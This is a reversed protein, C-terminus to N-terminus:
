FARKKLCQAISLEQKSSSNKAKQKHSISKNLVKENIKIVFTVQCSEKTIKHSTLQGKSIKLNKSSFSM